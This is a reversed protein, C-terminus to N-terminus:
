GMNQGALTRLGVLLPQGFKDVYKGLQEPGLDEHIDGLVSQLWHIREVEKGLQTFVPVMLISFCEGCYQAHGIAEGTHIKCAKAEQTDLMLQELTNM